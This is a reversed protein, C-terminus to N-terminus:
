SLQKIREIVQNHAKTSCDNKRNPAIMQHTLINEIPLFFKRMLYVCKYACSDIEDQTLERTNTDNIFSIGISHSNLDTVGQWYAKGAHWARKSDWVLQTREGDTNILYTYSVKSEPNCIWDIGGLYSGCSHHLIIFKPSISGGHNPSLKVQEGYPDNKTSM